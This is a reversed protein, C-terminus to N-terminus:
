STETDKQYSIVASANILQFNFRLHLAIKLQGYFKKFSIFVNLKNRHRHMDFIIQLSTLLM